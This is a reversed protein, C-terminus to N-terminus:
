EAGFSVSATTGEGLVSTFKLKAGHAIAIRECLALGLGTGGDRRNRAKDTRYFPETIHLLQEATMGIGNDKVYLTKVGNEQVAGLEVTGGTKCAKLANETLNALMLELLVADGKLLFDGGVCHLQVDGEGARAFFRDRTRLLMERSVFETPNIKNERVFATDLLIESIQKLRMSEAMIFQAAEIKEGESAKAASIYEAYGHISTLPTRMEHALDDLMRQRQDATRKLEDMQEGLKDAMANFNKALASFEDKGSDDARAAFDGGALGETAAKLKGLPVYLKRLLLYLFLALLASAFLSAIIFAISLRKFDEDLYTVDKAYTLTYGTEGIVETILMYRKGDAKGGALIGAEPCTLGAPIESYTVEGNKTFQLSIDKARYFTGYSVQLLQEGTGNVAELDREFAEVIYFEESRCVQEAAEVSNDHTYVALAFVGGNLFLLFLLLTLLYTREFFKMKM